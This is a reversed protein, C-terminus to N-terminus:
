KPEPDSQPRCRDALVQSCAAIKGSQRDGRSEFIGLESVEWAGTLDGSWGTITPAGM